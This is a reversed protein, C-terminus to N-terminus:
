LENKSTYKIYFSMPVLSMKALIYFMPRLKEFRRKYTKYDKFSKKPGNIVAEFEEDSYGLRKKFYDILEAEIYPPQAYEKLADEQTKLGARVSASLSNNRQDNNFKTPLYYSHMFATMRNELHHGGYYQWDFEKELFARADEKSYQIYWFPRIKKIRKVLIWKMFSKFDMNPFTKMKIKGFKKHVSKIYKGDAYFSGLPSIGETIYSHGELIYKIKYKSAARYLVEALAIDTPGDIEPVGAKFFSNFIDDSEKNDVVHTYLDVNLKGLVKRINETAIATNWTNDYHVALPRLGWELAKSVMFSSDTGGSVGIVCDYKKGKGATKIDEIIKMLAAEGEPTGTKYQEKLDDVMKCYNCVGQEDFEIKPTRSDYICRSCVQYTETKQENQLSFSKTDM